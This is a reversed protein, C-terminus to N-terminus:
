SVRIAEEANTGRASCGARCAGEDRVRGSGCEGRDFILQRAERIDIRIVCTRSCSCSFRYVRIITVVVAGHFSIHTSMMAEIEHIHIMMMMVGVMGMMMVQIAMALILMMMMLMMM